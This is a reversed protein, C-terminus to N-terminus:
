NFCFCQRSCSHCIFCVSALIWFIQFKICQTQLLLSWVLMIELDTSFIKATIVRVFVLTCRVVHSGLESKSVFGFCVLFRCKHGVVLLFISQGEECKHVFKHDM